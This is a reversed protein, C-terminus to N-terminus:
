TSALNLLLSRGFISNNGQKTATTCSAELNANSSRWTRRVKALFQNPFKGPWSTGAGCEDLVVPPDIFGAWTHVDTM